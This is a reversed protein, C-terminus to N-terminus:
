FLVRARTEQRSKMAKRRRLPEHLVKRKPSCYNMCINEWREHKNGTDYGGSSSGVYRDIKLVKTKSKDVHMRRFFDNCRPGFRLIDIRICSARSQSNNVNHKNHKDEYDYTKAIVRSDTNRSRESDVIIDYTGGDNTVEGERTQSRQSRSVLDWCECECNTWWLCAVNQQDSWFKM